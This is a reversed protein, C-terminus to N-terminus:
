QCDVIYVLYKSKYQISCHSTSNVQIPNIIDLSTDNRSWITRLVSYELLEENVDPHHKMFLITALLANYDEVIILYAQAFEHIADM